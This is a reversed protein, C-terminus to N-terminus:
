SEKELDEFLQKTASNNPLIEKKIQIPSNTDTRILILDNNQDIDVDYSNENETLWEDLKAM